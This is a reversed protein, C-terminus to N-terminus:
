AYRTEQRLEMIAAEMLALAHATRKNKLVNRKPHQPFLARLDCELDKNLLPVHLVNGEDDAIQIRM